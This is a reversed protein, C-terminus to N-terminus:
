KKLKKMKLINVPAFDDTLLTVVDNETVSAIETRKKLLKTVPHSFGYRAQIREAKNLLTTESLPANTAIAVHSHHRLLTSAGYLDVGAFVSRLTAIAAEFLRSNNFKAINFAVAGGPALRKSVLTFFERTMLHFPVHHGYFVDVLIIDWPGQNKKLFLRADSKHITYGSGAQVGFYKTAIDIIAPDLEVSDVTSQPMYHRLYSSAAGCGLGLDLISDSNEAYVTALTMLRAYPLALYMPRGIVRKCQGFQEGRLTFAFGLTTANDKKVFINNYVSEKVFVQGIPIKQFAEMTLPVTVQPLPKTDDAVAFLPDFFFCPLLTLLLAKKFFRAM